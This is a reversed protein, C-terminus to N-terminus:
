TKWCLICARNSLDFASMVVRDLMPFTDVIVFEYGRGLTLIRSVLEDDIEAADTAAAPSALLDAFGFSAGHGIAAALNRGPPRRDCPMPCRSRPIEILCGACVGMQLSLDVLLVQEPHRRVLGRAINVSLTSKGVGGKNSVLSVIKGASKDSSARSESLRLM